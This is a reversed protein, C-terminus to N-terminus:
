TSLSGSTVPFRGDTTILEPCVILAPREPNSHVLTAWKGIFGSTASSGAEDGAEYDFQQRKDM